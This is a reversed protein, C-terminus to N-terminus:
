NVSPLHMLLLEAEAKVEPTELYLMLCPGHIDLCVCASRNQNQVLSWQGCMALLQHGGQCSKYMCIHVRVYVCMCGLVSGERALIGSM